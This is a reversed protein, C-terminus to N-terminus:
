TRVLAGSAVVPGTPAGTPSGGRPEVSIAITAGQQLLDALANALRMHMQKDSSMTGLSRPKGGEPIVWLEHSHDPDSPMAGPVALVLQRAAPDWSAVVKMSGKDGLMAVMPIAPTQPAEIRGKPAIPAPRPQVVIMVALSAAIATMAGAVSRWLTLKRRLAPANDNAARDGLTRQEIRAWLGAPPRTPPTEEHLPALRGRWRAVAVAFAPDSAARRLADLLEDGTLLGLAYEAALDDFSRDDTM